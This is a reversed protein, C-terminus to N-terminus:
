IRDRDPQAPRRPRHATSPRQGRRSLALSDSEPYGEARQIWVRKLGIGLRRRDSSLAHEAPVFAEDVEFQLLNPADHALCNGTCALILERSSAEDITGSWLDNHNLIVKMGREPLPARDFLLGIRLWEVTGGAVCFLVTSIPARSWVFTPEVPYWEEKLLLREGNGGACVYEPEGDILLLDATNRVVDRLRGCVAPLVPKPPGDFRARGGVILSERLLDRIGTAAPEHDHDEFWVLIGEPGGAHAVDVPAIAALRDTALKLIPSVGDSRSAALDNRVGQSITHSMRLHYAGECVFWAVVDRIACQEPPLLISGDCSAAYCYGALMLATCAVGSGPEEAVIAKSMTALIPGTPESSLSLGEEIPRVSWFWALFAYQCVEEDLLPFRQQLDERSLWAAIMCDTLFRSALTGGERLSDTISLVSATVGGTAFREAERHRVFDSRSVTHRIRGGDGLKRIDRWFLASRETPQFLLVADPPPELTGSPRASASQGAGAQPFWRVPEQDLSADTEEDLVEPKHDQGNRLSWPLELALSHGNDGTDAVEDIQGTMTRRIESAMSPSTMPYGTSVSGVREFVIPSGPMTAGTDACRLNLVHRGESLVGDELEIDFGYRGDGCGLPVIEERFRDAVAVALQKEGEVLELRIREDPVQPDWAWGGITAITAKEIRGRLERNAPPTTGVAPTTPDPPAAVIIDAALAGNAYAWPYDGEDSTATDGGAYCEDNPGGAPVVGNGPPPPLFAPPAEGISCSAKKAGPETLPYGPRQRGSKAGRTKVM